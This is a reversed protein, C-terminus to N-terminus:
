TQEGKAALRAAVWREAGKRDTVEGTIRAERLSTLLEGVAAGEAVNFQAMIDDGTLLPPADDVPKVRERHRADMFAYLDAIRSVMDPKSKEGRSAAADAMALLFLGPVDVALDHFLNDIARDTPHTQPDSTSFAAALNLPRLHHKVLRRIRRVAKGALRLRRGIHDAMQAGKEAHDYFHIGNDESRTAPKGVDHLLAAWFLAQRCTDDHAYRVADDVPLEHVTGLVTELQRVTELTHEWVDLHHYAGQTMGRGESLEPILAELVGDAMMLDIAGSPTPAALLPGMEQSIREAAPRAATSALAVLAKRTDPEIDFGLQAAFRYARLVRLPDDELSQRCTMRVRRAHLDDRGGTPDIFDPAGGEFTEAFPLAIANVTFDRLKLDAEITPARLTVLDIWDIGQTSRIAVRVTSTDPDLPVFVGGTEGALEKGLVMADGEVALDLDRPWRTLLVDRLTGGTVWLRAGHRGALASLVGVAPEARLTEAYAFLYPPFM